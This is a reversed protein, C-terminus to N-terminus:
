LRSQYGKEADKVSAGVCVRMLQLPTSGSQMLKSGSCGTSVPADALKRHFTVGESVRELRLM